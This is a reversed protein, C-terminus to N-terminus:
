WKQWFGIYLPLIGSLGKFGVPSIPISLSPIIMHMMAGIDLDLPAQDPGPYGYSCSASGSLPGQAPGMGAALGPRGRNGRRTPPRCGRSTDQTARPPNQSGGRGLTRCGSEKDGLQVHLDTLQMELQEVQTTPDENTVLAPQHNPTRHDDHDRAAQPVGAMDFDGSDGRTRRNTIPQKAQGSSLGSPHQSLGVTHQESTVPAPETPIQIGLPPNGVQNEVAAARHLASRLSNQLMLIAMEAQAAPVASAAEQHGLAAQVIKKAQRRKRRRHPKPRPRPARWYKYCGSSGLGLRM